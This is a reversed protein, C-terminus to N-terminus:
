PGALMHVGTRTIPRRRRPDDRERLVAANPAGPEPENRERLEGPNPAAITTEDHERVMAPDVDEVAPMPGARLDAPNAEAGAPAAKVAPAHEARPDAAVTRAPDALLHARQVYGHAGTRRHTAAPNGM